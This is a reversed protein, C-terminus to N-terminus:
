LRGHEPPPRWALPFPAFLVLYPFPSFPLPHLSHPPPLRTWVAGGGEKLIHKGKFACRHLLNADLWLFLSFLVLYSIPTDPIHFPSEPFFLILWSMAFFRTLYLQVLYSKNHGFTFLPISPLRASASFFYLLLKLFRNVWNARHQLQLCISKKEIFDHSFCIYNTRRQALKQDVLWLFLLFKDVLFMTFLGFIKENHLPLGYSLQLAHGTLKLTGPQFLRSM